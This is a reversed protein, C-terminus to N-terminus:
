TEFLSLSSHLFSCESQSWQCGNPHNRDFWCPKTRPKRDDLSKRRIADFSQFRIRNDEIKLVHKHNRVFTQLGGCQNKLHRLWEPNMLRIIELFTLGNRNSEESSLLANTISGLILQKIEDDIRTCNRVTEIRSRIRQKRHQNRNLFEQVLICRKHKWESEISDLDEVNKETRDSSNSLREHHNRHEKTQYYRDMCILCIRKTSPIRLKDRFSKFGFQDALQQLFEIYCQYQSQNSTITRQFKNGDFDYCCCPLLFINTSPSMMAGIFVIWPTLEDSHNGIIWDTPQLGFSGDRWENLDIRKEILRLRDSRYHSWINRRRIDIGYGDYGEETLLYVLLGNGCGIDAFTQKRSLKSISSSSPPLQDLKEEEEQQWLTLLYAAIGIDEYIFKIPDTKEVNSWIKILPGVYKNKLRHYNRCYNQVSIKSISGLSTEFTKEGDSIGLDLDNRDLNNADIKHDDNKNEKKCNMLSKRVFHNSFDKNLWKRFKPVFKNELWWSHKACSSSIADSRIRPRDLYSLKCDLLNELDNECGEDTAILEILFALESDCIKIILFRDSKNGVEVFCKQQATSTNRENTNEELINDNEDLDKLPWSAFRNARPEFIILDYAFSKNSDVDSSNNITNNNNNSNNDTENNDNSNNDNRDSKTSLYKLSQKRFLKRLLLLISNKPQTLLYQLFKDFHFNKVDIGDDIIILDNLINTNITSPSSPPPPSSSSLHELLKDFELDSGFRWLRLFEAGILRNNILNPRSFHLLSCHWFALNAM